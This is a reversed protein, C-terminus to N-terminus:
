STGDKIAWAAFVRARDALTAFLNRCERTGGPAPLDRAINFASRVLQEFLPQCLTPCLYNMKVPRLHSVVGGM